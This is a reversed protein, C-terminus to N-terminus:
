AAGRLELTGHVKGSTKEPLLGMAVIRWADAIILLKPYPDGDLGVSVTTDWSAWVGAEVLRQKILRGDFLKGGILVPWQCQDCGLEGGVSQCTGCECGACPVVRLDECKPCAREPLVAVLRDLGIEHPASATLYASALGSRKANDKAEGGARALMTYGDDIATWQQGIVIVRYSFTDVRDATSM